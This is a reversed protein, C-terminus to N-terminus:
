KNIKCKCLNKLTQILQMQMDKFSTPHDARYFIFFFFSKWPTVTYKEELGEKQSFNNEAKSPAPAKREKMKLIKMM